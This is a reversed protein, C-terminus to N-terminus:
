QNRIERISSRDKRKTDKILTINNVGFQSSIYHKPVSFCYSLKKRVSIRKSKRNFKNLETKRRSNQLFISFNYLSQKIYLQM